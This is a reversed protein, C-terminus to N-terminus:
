RRRRSPGRRGRRARCRRRHLRSAARRSRGTPDRGRARGREPAACRTRLTAASSRGRTVRTRRVRTAVGALLVLLLMSAPAPASRCGCGSDSGSAAGGDTDTDTSSGPGATTADPGTDDDSSSGGGSGSSEGGPDEGEEEVVEFFGLIAAMLDIRTQADPITEFPFGMLVGREGADGWAIAAGSSLGDAYVLAVSGGADPELVDPFRADYATPDDFSLPGVEALAADAVSEVAYTEADDAVYRAHLRENFFAQEDPMGYEDLAWGLESGSVFLRGGGDLYDTIADRATLALPANGVSDDGAFWDVAQYGGLGVDGSEIADDTAGDFSFGAGAVAHGHRAAYGFDNMRQLRMRQVVDLDFASLDDVPLQGADLRDFGGVVLVSASGSPAVAAGVVHSPLSRGGDNAAEIRVFRVDGPSLGEIAHSTGDVWVGDDFGLGNSSVRVFYGTPPDGGGAAPDPERWGVELGGDGDNRVWVASPPEPPLVLPVGDREAFFAAIGQAMARSVIRRFGPDRLQDADDLTDHYAVEVLVAPM